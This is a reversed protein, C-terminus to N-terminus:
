ATNSQLTAPPNADRGLALAALREAEFERHWRSRTDADVWAGDIGHHMFQGIAEADFGFDTHMKQWAQTGNVLHLAPDDTNPHVRVGAAPMFRIPHDAAWREPPLTRLYYSNTPVVTVIIGSDAVRRALAPNQLLTYGHDLRDVKLLDLATQVHTWPCGFEGAHATTKLGSTRALAYASAFLEPPHDTERYDLGIGAVKEHPSAAVWEVMEVAARAGAERDISPILLSSIGHDHEADQMGRLIAQLGDRYGIGADRATGTPNWFFEAHRINHARAAALYEVTMRYLDDPSRLLQRELLRLVKLVGVPKDGRTYYSEIEDASIALRERQVWDTLTSRQITGLLHCHLEVKPLAQFFMENVVVQGPVNSFFVAHVGGQSALGRSDLYPMRRSCLVGPCQSM